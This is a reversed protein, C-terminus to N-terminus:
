KGADISIILLAFSLFLEIILLIVSIVYGSKKTGLAKFIFINGIVIALCFLGLIISKDAFFSVGPILISFSALALFCGTRSSDKSKIKNRIAARVKPNDDCQPCILMKYRYRSWGNPITESVVEWQNNRYEEEVYGIGSKGCYNCQYNVRRERSM